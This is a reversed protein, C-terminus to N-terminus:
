KKKKDSPLLMTPDWEVNAAPKAAPAASGTTVPEPAPEPRPPRPKRKRAPQTAEQTDTRQPAPPQAIPEDVKAPVDSKAPVDVKAPLEVNTSPQTAPDDVSRAPESTRTALVALVVGAAACAGIVAAWLAHGRRARVPSLSPQTDVVVDEVVAADSPGFTAVPLDEPPPTAEIIAVLSTDIITDEDPAAANANV